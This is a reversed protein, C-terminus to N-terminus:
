LSPQSKNDDDIAWGKSRLAHSMNLLVDVEEVPAYGPNKVHPASKQCRHNNDDYPCDIYKPQYPGKKLYAQRIEDQKNM